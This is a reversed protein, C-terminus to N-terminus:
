RTRGLFGRAEEASPPSYRITLTKWSGSRSTRSRVAQPHDARTQCTPVRKMAPVASGSLTAPQCETGAAAGPLRAAMDCDGTGPIWCAARTASRTRTRSISSSLPRRGGRITRRPVPDTTVQRRARITGGDARPMGTAFIASTVSVLASRTRSTIWSKLASPKSASQGLYSPPRGLVNVRGSRRSILFIALDLGAPRPRGHEVQLRALGASKRTASPTTSSMLWSPGRM